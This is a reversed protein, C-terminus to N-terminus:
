RVRSLMFRTPGKVRPPEWLAHTRRADSLAKRYQEAVAQAKSTSQTLEEAADMALRCALVEVFLPGFRGSDTVRSVYEYKLPAELDTHIQDEVFRYSATTRTYGTAEYMVGIARYDITYGDIMLPRLDDTPREFVKSYGWDPTITTAALNVRRVAFGWAGAAVEADRLATFRAKMARAPKNDDDLSVIRNEGLKSLARNCIEVDSSM